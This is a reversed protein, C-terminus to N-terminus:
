QLKLKCFVYITTAWCFSWFRIHKAAMTRGNWNDLMSGSSISRYFRHRGPQGTQILHERGGVM